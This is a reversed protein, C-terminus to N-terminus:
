HKGETHTKLFRLLQRNKPQDLIEDKLPPYRFHRLGTYAWLTTPCRLEDRRVVAPITMLAPIVHSPHPHQKLWPTFSFSPSLVALPLLFLPPTPLLPPFHGPPKMWPNPTSATIPATPNVTMTESYRKSILGDTRRMLLSAINILFM